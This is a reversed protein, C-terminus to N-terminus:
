TLQTRLHGLGTGKKKLDPSANITILFFLM